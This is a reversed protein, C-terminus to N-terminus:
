SQKLDNLKKELLTVIKNIDGLKDLILDCKSKIRNTQLEKLYYPAKAYDGAGFSAKGFPKEVTMKPNPM